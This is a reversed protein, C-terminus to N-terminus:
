AKVNTVILISGCDRSVVPVGGTISGCEGNTFTIIMGRISALQRIPACVLRVRAVSSLIQRPLNEDRVM